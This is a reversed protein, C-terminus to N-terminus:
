QTVKELVSQNFTLVPCPSNRVVTEAVSGMLMRKLGTHGHTTMLIMNADAEEAYDLIGQGATGERIVYEVRSLDLGSDSAFSSLKILLEEKAPLSAAASALAAGSSADGAFFPVSDLMHLIHIKVKPDGQQIYRAFSFAHKSADSFDTPILLTDPNSNDM